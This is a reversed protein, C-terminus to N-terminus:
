PYKKTTHWSISKPTQGWQENYVHGAAQLCQGLFVDIQGTEFRQNIKKEAHVVTAHDRKMLNAVEMCTMMFENRFVYMLVHRLDAIRRNNNYGIVESPAINLEACVGDIYKTAAMNMAGVVSETSPQGYCFAGSM